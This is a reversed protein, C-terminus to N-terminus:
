AAPRTRKATLKPQATPRVEGSQWATRLESLFEELM